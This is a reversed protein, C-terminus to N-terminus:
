INNTVVGHKHSYQGTLLSARSPSCPYSAAMSQHFIMGRKAVKDLNPTQCVLSGYAGITNVSQQDTMIVLVNPREQTEQCAQSFFLVGLVGITLYQM